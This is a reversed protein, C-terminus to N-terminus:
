TLNLTNVQTFGPTEKGPKCPSIFVEEWVDVIYQDTDYTAWVCMSRSPETGCDFWARFPNLDGNPNWATPSNANTMSSQDPTSISLFTDRRDQRGYTSSLAALTIDPRSYTFVTSDLTLTANTICSHLPYQRLGCNTVTWLDNQPLPTALAGMPGGGLTASIYFRTRTFMRRSLVIMPSNQFTWVIQSSSASTANVEQVSVSDMSVPCVYKYQENAAPDTSDGFDM